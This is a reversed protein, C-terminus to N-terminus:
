RTTKGYRHLVRQDVPRCLEVTAPKKGGQAGSTAIETRMEHRKGVDAAQVIKETAERASTVGTGISACRRAHAGAIKGTEPARAIGGATATGAATGTGIETGTATAIAAM